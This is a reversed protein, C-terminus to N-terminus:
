GLVFHLIHLSDRFSHLPFLLPIIYCCLFLAFSRLVPPHSCRYLIQFCIQLEKLHLIDLEEQISKLQNNKYERASEVEELISSFENASSAKRENLELIKAGDEEIVDEIRRREAELYPIEEAIKLLNVLQQPTIGDKKTLRYLKVFSFM